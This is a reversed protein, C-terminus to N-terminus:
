YTNTAVGINKAYGLTKICRKVSVIPLSQMGRTFQECMQHTTREPEARYKVDAVEDKFVRLVKGQLPEGDSSPHPSRGIGAAVGDMVSATCLTLMKTQAMERVQWAAQVLKAPSNTHLNTKPTHSPEMVAPNM